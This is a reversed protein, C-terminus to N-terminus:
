GVFTVIQGSPKYLSGDPTRLLGDTTPRGAARNAHFNRLAADTMARLTGYKQGHKHFHYALNCTLADFLGQSTQVPTFSQAAWKVRLDPTLADATAKLQLLSKGRKVEDLYREYALRDQSSEGGRMLHEM